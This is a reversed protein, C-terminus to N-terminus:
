SLGLNIFKCDKVEQETMEFEYYGNIKHRTMRTMMEAVRSLVGTILELHEVDLENMKIKM